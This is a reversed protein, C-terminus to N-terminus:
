SQLIPISFMHMPLDLINRASDSMSASRQVVDLIQTFMAQVGMPLAPSVDNIDDVPKSRAFPQSFASM